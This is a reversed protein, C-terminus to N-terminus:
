SNTKEFLYLNYEEDSTILQPNSGPAIVIIDDIKIYQNPDLSSKIRSGNKDIVFGEDDINFGLRPLIEQLDDTHYPIIVVDGKKFEIKM